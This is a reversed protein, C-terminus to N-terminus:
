AAFEMTLKRFLPRLRASRWCSITSIMTDLASFVRVMRETSGLNRRVRSIGCPTFM